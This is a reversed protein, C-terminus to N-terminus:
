NTGNKESGRMHDSMIIFFVKSVLFEFYDDNWLNQRTSELYEAEKNWDKM